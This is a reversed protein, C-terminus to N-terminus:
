SDIRKTNSVRTVLTADFPTDQLVLSICHYLCRFHYAASALAGNLGGNVYFLSLRVKRM